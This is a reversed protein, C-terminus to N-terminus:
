EEVGLQRLKTGFKCSGASWMPSPRGGPSSKLPSWAHFFTRLGTMFQTGSLIGLNLVLAAEPAYADAVPRDELLKFARAIGGLADELDAARAREPRVTQTTLDVWYRNVVVDTPGM